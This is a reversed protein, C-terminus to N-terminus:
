AEYFDVIFPTTLEYPEQCTVAVIQGNTYAIESDDSFWDGWMTISYTNDPEDTTPTYITMDEFGVYPTGLSIADDFGFARHLKVYLTGYTQGAVPRM